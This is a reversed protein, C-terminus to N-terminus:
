VPALPIIYPKEYKKEIEADVGYVARINEKTLANEPNGTGFIKGDKMLIITDAYVSAINLDHCAMIILLGKNGTLEKMIKMVELQHRIDLNSTPEDLLIIEPEQALGRAILVKQKQGASLRDFPKLALDELGLLKLIDAAIDLDEEKSSIGSYPHRGLLVTDIVTFSFDGPLEQPVYGVERAIHMQKMTSIDRSDLLVTGKRPKLIRNICHIFTSKGVGNPGLICVLMSEKLEISLEKLVPVSNYSFELDHISLKMKDTRGM